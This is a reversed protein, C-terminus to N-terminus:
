RVAGSYWRRGGDDDTLRWAWSAGSLLRAARTMAAVRNGVDSYVGLRSESAVAGGGVGVVM